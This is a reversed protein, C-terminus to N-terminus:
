IATIQGIEPIILREDNGTTKLVADRLGYEDASPAPLHLIIIKKAGTEKAIHWGSDTNAFAFPAILVDPKTDKKFKKLSLPSADGMFWVCKSGTIVYSVHPVDSKGIHRTNITKIRVNDTEVSTTYGPTIIKKHAKICYDAYDCDYHDEHLHTFAIVDPIDKELSRRIEEPTGQYPSFENAVGDILIRIRDLLLLGGANSTRKFEM